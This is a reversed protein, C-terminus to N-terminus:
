VTVEDKAHTFKVELNLDFGDPSPPPGSYYGSQRVPLKDWTAKRSSDFTTLTPNSSRAVISSNLIGELGPREFEAM